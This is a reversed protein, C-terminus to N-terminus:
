HHRSGCGCAPGHVHSTEGMGPELSRVAQERGRAMHGHFVPASLLLKELSGGCKPCPQPKENIRHQLEIRLQCERCRYDYTPM